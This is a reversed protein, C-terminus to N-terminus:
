WTMAGNVGLIGPGISPSISAVRDHSGSSSVLLAVVGGVALAGGAAFGVTAVTLQEGAKDTHSRIDAAQTASCGKYGRCVGDRAALTNSKQILFATGVGLGVVGAGVGLWGLTRLTSQSTSRDNAPRASVAPAGGAAVLTPISVPLRQAEGTVSVESSWSQYGPASAEIRHSGADVLTGTQWLSPSLASGNVKVELGLPAPTPAVIAIRNLRPELQTVQDRALAAREDNRSRAMEEADRFSSWASALQGNKAYCDALHLLAGLQPDLRMSEAYKPCAAAFQGAAMLREAEDYLQVATTKSTTQAAIPAASLFWAVGLSITLRM